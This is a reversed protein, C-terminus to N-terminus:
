YYSKLTRDVAYPWWGLFLTLVNKQHALLLVNLRACFILHRDTKYCLGSDVNHQNTKNNNQMQTNEVRYFLVYAQCVLVAKFLLSPWDTGTRGLGPFTFINVVVVRFLSALVIANVADRSTAWVETLKGPPAQCQRRSTTIQDLIYPWVAPHRWRHHPTTSPARHPKAVGGGWCM